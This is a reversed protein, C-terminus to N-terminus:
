KTRALKASKWMDKAAIAQMRFKHAESLVREADGELWFLRGLLRVNVVFLVANVVVALWFGFDAPGCLSSTMGM